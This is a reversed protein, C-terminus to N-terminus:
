SVAGKFVLIGVLCQADTIQFDLINCFRFCKQASPFIGCLFNWVTFKMKYLFLKFQQMFNNELYTYLTIQVYICKFLPEMQLICCYTHVLFYEFIEFSIEFDSIYRSGLM